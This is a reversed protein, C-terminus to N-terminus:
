DAAPIPLGDLDLKRMSEDDEEIAIPDQIARDGVSCAALM